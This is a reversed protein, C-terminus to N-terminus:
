KNPCNDELRRTRFPDLKSRAVANVFPSGRDLSLPWLYYFTAYSCLLQGAVQTLKTAERDGQKWVNVRGNATEKCRGFQGSKLQSYDTIRIPEQQARLVM